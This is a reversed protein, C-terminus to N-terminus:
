LFHSETHDSQYSLGVCCSLTHVLIRLCLTCIGRLVWSVEKAEKNSILEEKIHFTKMIRKTYIYRHHPTPHHILPNSDDVWLVPNTSWNEIRTDFIFVCICSKSTSYKFCPIKLAFPFSVHFILTQSAEYYILNLWEKHLHHVLDYLTILQTGSGHIQDINVASFSLEQM